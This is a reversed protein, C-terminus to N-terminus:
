RIRGKLLQASVAKKERILERAEEVKEWVNCLMVGRVINDKLYYLVGKRNEEFWDVVVELRSSVDGVAEYGFDFLDSFFYPMYDYEKEAGAMNEGAVKGQSMANDWHEVRKREGLETYPFSAVDGAAYVSGDSTRLHGDVEIGDGTKLGASIALEASPTVGVGAVLMDATLTGREKTAVFLRGDKQEIASPTTNALVRIGRDMFDKQVALGLAEPLVRNCLYSSPFLMTVSVNNVSLVAALESGIFGGGVIIVSRGERAREKLFIYDDLSRFYCVDRLSGGPIDLKRPACGTALLLKEYGFVNGSSDRIEKTKLDLSVARSGLRLDVKNKEYFDPPGIFIDELKKKGLWLKKSLPPRDYPRHAEAGLLLIGGDPDRGRIGKVASAGSLGGGVIVYGYSKKM